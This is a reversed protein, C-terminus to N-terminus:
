CCCCKNQNKVKSHLGDDGEEGFTNKIDNFNNLVNGNKSFTSFSYEGPELLVDPDFAKFGNKSIFNNKFIEDEFITQKLENTTM